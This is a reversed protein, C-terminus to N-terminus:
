RFVFFIAQLHLWSSMRSIYAVRMVRGLTVYKRKRKKLREIDAASRRREGLANENEATYKKRREAICRVNEEKRAGLFWNKRAEAEPCPSRM